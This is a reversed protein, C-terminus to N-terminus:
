SSPWDNVLTWPRSSAERYKRALRRHRDVEDMLGPAGSVQIQHFGGYLEKADPSIRITLQKYLRDYETEHFGALQRLYAIRSGLMVCLLTVVIMLSRLSYKM